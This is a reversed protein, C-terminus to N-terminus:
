LLRNAKAAMTAATAHWNPGTAILVADIDDRALLERFDIYTDCAKDGNARDVQNKAKQRNDGRVDCVAVCHVDPAQLFCSLVYRGDPSLMPQKGGEIDIIALRRHGISFHAHSHRGEGDPGRHALRTMMRGVIDDAAVV